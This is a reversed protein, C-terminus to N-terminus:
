QTNKQSLHFQNDPIIPLTPYLDTYITHASFTRSQPDYHISNIKNLNALYDAARAEDDSTTLDNLYLLCDQHEKQGYQHSHGSIYVRKYKKKDSFQKPINQIWIKDIDPIEDYIFIQHRFIILNNDLNQYILGFCCSFYKFLLSLQKFTFTKTYSFGKCGDIFLISYEDNKITIRNQQFAKLIHQLVLVEHNGCLFKVKNNIDNFSKAEFKIQNFDQINTFKKDSSFLGFDDLAQLCDFGDKKKDPFSDALNNFIDGLFIFQQYPNQKIFNLISLLRNHHGEIDGITFYLLNSQEPFSPFVIPEEQHLKLNLSKIGIPKRQKMDKSIRPLLKKSKEDIKSLLAEFAIKVDQMADENSRNNNRYNVPYFIPNQSSHCCSKKSYIEILADNSNQTEGNQKNTIIIYPKNKLMKQALIQDLFTKSEEFLDPDSVDIVYIFGSIEAM